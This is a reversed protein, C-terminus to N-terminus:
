AYNHEERVNVSYTAVIDKLSSNEKMLERIKEYQSQNENILATNREQLVSIQSSSSTAILGERNKAARRHAILLDDMEKNQKSLTDNEEAMMKTFKTQTQLQMELSEVDRFAAARKM